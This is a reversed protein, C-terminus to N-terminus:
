SDLGVSETTEIYATTLFFPLNLTTSILKLYSFLNTSLVM